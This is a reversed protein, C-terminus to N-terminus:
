LQIRREAHWKMTQSVKEDTKFTGGDDMYVCVSDYIFQQIGGTDPDRITEVIRFYIEPRQAYYNDELLQHLDDVNRDYRDIKFTGEWGKYVTRRTVLGGRTITSSDVNSTVPKRTFETLGAMTVIDGSQENVLDLKVEHGLNFTKNGM